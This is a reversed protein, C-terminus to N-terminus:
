IAGGLLMILVIAALIISGIVAICDQNDRECHEQIKENFLQHEKPLRM